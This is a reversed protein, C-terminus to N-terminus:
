SDVDRKKLDTLDGVRNNPAVVNRQMLCLDRLVSNHFSSISPCAFERHIDDCRQPDDADTHQRCTASLAETFRTGTKFAPQASNVASTYTSKATAKTKGGQNTLERVFDPILCFLLCLSHSLLLARRSFESFPKQLILELSNTFVKM